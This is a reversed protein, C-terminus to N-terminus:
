QTMGWPQPWRSQVFGAVFAALGLWWVVPSYTPINGEIARQVLLCERTAGDLCPLKVSLLGFAGQWQAYYAFWWIVAIGMLAIGLKSAFPAPRHSFADTM